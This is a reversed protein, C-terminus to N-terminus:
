RLFFHPGDSILDGSAVSSLSLSYTLLSEGRYSLRFRPGNTTLLHWKMFMRGNRLHRIFMPTEALCRAPSCSVLPNGYDAGTKKKGQVFLQRPTLVANAAALSLSVNRFIYLSSSSPNWLRRSRIRKLFIAVSKVSYLTFRSNRSKVIEPYGDLRTM